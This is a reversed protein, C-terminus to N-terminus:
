RELWEAVEAYSEEALTEIHEAGPEKKFWTRQRKAYQRTALTISAKATELSCKGELFDAVEKYGIAQMATPREPYRQLLAEVEAVLGSTFMAETRREIRPELSELSPLLILKNYRFEPASSPFSSPPLGTRRLIELARVVRRPNRQARLADEPSAHELEKQLPELGEREFTRWLEAQIKSDAAPITPLGQALARLYFGTGGTVLPLKNRSLINGIAAEALRVYDAVSFPADPNVMDILHHPVAARERASPKATGIDIGRYVMM